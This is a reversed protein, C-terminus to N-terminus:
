ASASILGVIPGAVTTDGVDHVNIDFRETGRIAIQDSDFKLDTSLAITTQRRDGYLAALDLDGFLCAVQSNVDTHPMAQCIRVPYGMFRPTRQGAAIEAATVGGAALQLREMVTHWFTKHCYWATNDDDAYQPLTGMCTTFDTLIFEAFTNGAAVTLGKINGITVDVARLAAAVGRIRGYTSTGDGIFGCEDEKKAFAYAIEKAFDNGLEIVSDEDVESSYFALVALKKATLGVQDWGKTSDTITAGEGVFYATLGSTRRPQTKTDSRMTSLHANQRFVGYKERLDILTADFEPPVLYGGAANVGESAAKVLVIGNDKCWGEARDNGFVTALLWQGFAYAKQHASGFEDTRFSAVRTSALRTPVKVHKLSRPEDTDDNTAPPATAGVPDNLWASRAGAKAAAAIAAKVTRIEGELGDLEADLEGIRKLEEATCEAGKATLATMEDNREQFQSLLATLKPNM